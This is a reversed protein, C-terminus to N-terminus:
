TSIPAERKCYTTLAYSTWYDYDFLWWAVSRSKICRGVKSGDTKFRSTFVELHKKCAGNKYTFPERHGRIKQYIELTQITTTRDLLHKLRACSPDTEPKLRM